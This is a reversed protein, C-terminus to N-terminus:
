YPAAAEDLGGERRERLARLHQVAERLEAQCAYSDDESTRALLARVRDEADCILRELLNGDM